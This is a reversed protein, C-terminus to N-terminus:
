RLGKLAIRYREFDAIRDGIFRLGEKKLLEKKRTKGLAYGGINGNSMVVRHCPVAILNPNKSLIQGIRRFAISYGLARAIDAYTTVKGEPVQALIDYVQSTMVSQKKM